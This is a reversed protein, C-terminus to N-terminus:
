TLVVRYRGRAMKQVRGDRSLQALTRYATEPTLGILEAFSKIDDTLLGDNLASLIREDAAKISLLEVRRRSQQIQSAFRSAISHAFKINTEFLHSIASRKCEIVHTTCVATATCHYSDSFISAEAFTDGARARHIVISHGDETTRKLDIAGSVLYFLGTTTSGQIFLAEGSELTRHVQDNKHLSDLPPPLPNNSM